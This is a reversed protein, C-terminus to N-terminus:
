KFVRGTKLRNIDSKYEHLLSSMYKTPIYRSQKVNHKVQIGAGSQSPYPSSFRKRIIRGSKGSKTKVYKFALYKNLGPIGREISRVWSRGGDAWPMPTKQFIEQATPIYISVYIRGARSYVKIKYEKLIKRLKPIPSSGIAFGIFGFLNGSRGQLTGSKNLARPGISIEQTVPHNDFKELFRNQIKLFESEIIKKIRERMPKNKLMFDNVYPLLDKKFNPKRKLRM